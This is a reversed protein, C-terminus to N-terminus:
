LAVEMGEIQVEGVASKVVFDLYYTREARNFTPDLSIISEVGPVDLIASVFHAKVVSLDPNKIFIDEFYPIGLDPNLYWEGKVFLLRTKIKQALDTDGESLVLQGAVLALDHTELDLLLNM